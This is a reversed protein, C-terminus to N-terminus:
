KPLARGHPRKGSPQVNEPKQPLYQPAINEQSTPLEAGSNYLEIKNSIPQDQSTGAISQAQVIPAAATTADSEGATEVLAQGESKTRSVTAPEDPAEPGLSRGVMRAIEGRLEDTMELTGFGSIADPANFDWSNEALGVFDRIRPDASWARRLAARTLEVPVGPALFARIDSEATISELPPLTAVDFPVQETAVGSTTAAQRPEGRDQRDQPSSQASANPTVRERQEAPEERKALAHQHKEQRKRRSWRAIFNEPDSM